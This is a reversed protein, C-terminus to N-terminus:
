GGSDQDAEPGDEPGQQEVDEAAFTSPDIVMQEQDAEDAFGPIATTLDAAPAKAASTEGEGTARTDGVDDKKKFNSNFLGGAISM